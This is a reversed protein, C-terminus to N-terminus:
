LVGLNKYIEKIKISERITNGLLNIHHQKKEPYLVQSKIDIGFPEVFYEVIVRNDFFGHIYTGFVKESIKCGLYEGDDSEFIPNGGLIETQGSHIEYGTCRQNNFYFNIRRTIKERKLITKIPLIGLGKIKEINGELGYPDAIEIGMMQYGGCIGVLIGGKKYHKIIARALDTDWLFKMDKTVSKSGPIIIIHAKLIEKIDTTFILSVDNINSLTVFDTFNSIFPLRIVAIKLKADRFKSEKISVSDEEDLILDKLYPIVGLVKKKTLRQLIRKGKEFLRIEGRFKNVILGKLLERESKTLLMLTGYFSAFIGGKEIDSLLYFDPKIKKIIRSNALDRKRLNLEAVSGAGEIVIPFYKECLANYSHFIERELYNILREDYLEESKVHLKPKGKLVLQSTSEGFPKLLVPNMNVDPDIMAAEAQLVQARAMELGDLTVFSNLSMNLAKFPAPNLGDQKFIRCLGAVILSKGVASSTGGIFISKKSTKM